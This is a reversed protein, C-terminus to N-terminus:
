EQVQGVELPKSRCLFSYAMELRVVGYLKEYIPYPCTGYDVKQPVQVTVEHEDYEWVTPTLRVVRTPDEAPSWTTTYSLASGLLKPQYEAQKFTITGNM